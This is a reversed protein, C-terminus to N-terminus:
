EHLRSDNRPVCCPGESEVSGPHNDSSCVRSEICVMCAESVRRNRASYPATTLVPTFEDAFTSWVMSLHNEQVRRNVASVSLPVRVISVSCMNSARKTAVINVTLALASKWIVSRSQSVSCPEHHLVDNRTISPHRRVNIRQKNFCPQMAGDNM